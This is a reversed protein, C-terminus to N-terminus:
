TSRASVSPRTPSDPQPLDVVPRQTSRRISGVEPSISNSPLSTRDSPGLSSRMKRLKAPSADAVDEGEILISGDTVEYLRLIARGCTSKGCGSEGVLGLTEGEYIDFTVGDVARVAGIRRRLLGAFIPFHIKLGRVEVLKRPATDRM